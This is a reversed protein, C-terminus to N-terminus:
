RNTTSTSGTGGVSRVEIRRQQQRSETTKPLTLTLLGREFQANIQNRDVNQPLQFSRVLEGYYREMVHYRGQQQTGGSTTQGGTTSQQGGPQGSQGGGYQGGGYQRHARLTLTDGSITVEIDQENLGPLEAQVIYSEETEAVDVPITVHSGLGAPGGIQGILPQRGGSLFSPFGLNSFMREIESRITNFPDSRGYREPGGYGGGYYVDRGQM